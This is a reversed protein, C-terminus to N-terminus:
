TNNVVLGHARAFEDLKEDLDDDLEYYQSDLENLRADDVLRDTYTFRRAQDAPVPDTGFIERKAARLLALRDPVELRILGLEAYRYYDGSSNDFFQAFGGNYVEKDLVGVAFYVRENDSLYDLGGEQMYVRGVLDRWYARFPCTQDLEREKRYYERSREISERYGKACPVCLGGNRDATRKLISTGCERCSVKDAM